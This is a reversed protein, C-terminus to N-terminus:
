DELGRRLKELGKLIIEKARTRSKGIGEGVKPLTKESFYRLTIVKREREPLRSVANYLRQHLARQEIGAYHSPTSQETFTIPQQARFQTQYLKEVTVGLHDALETDTPERDQTLKRRTKAVLNCQTVIHEPLYIQRGTKSIAELMSGRVHPHAFTSFQYGREVEFKEIATMLGFSGEQVLDEFTLSLKQYQAHIGKAIRKVLPLNAVM